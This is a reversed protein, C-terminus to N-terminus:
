GAFADRLRGLLGRPRAHLEAATEGRLEALERLLARQGDDLDTPTEVRCHIHLDGRAGGGGSSRCGRAGCVSCTGGGAHRAPVDLEAEGDITPVKLQSGLAAQVVPIRLECRLDNGDRVFLEHRRLRTRM